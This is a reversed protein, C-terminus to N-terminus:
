LIAVARVPSADRGTLRLPLVVLQFPQEGIGDLNTLSEIIPIGAGLLTRHAPYPDRDVSPMDVAVLAVGCDVLYSAADAAICPHGTFYRSTGWHKSWGTHLIVAHGAMPAPCRTRLHYRRIEPAPTIGRLDILRAPAMCRELPV